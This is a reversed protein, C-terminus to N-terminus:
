LVKGHSEKGEVVPLRDNEVGVILTASEKM